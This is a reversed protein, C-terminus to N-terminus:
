SEENVLITSENGVGLEILSAMDDELLIPLPSDEEQLFLVPKVSKLKFFSQCLNKLKGVTTTAPLKKMVPPKEGISAGVCKLSVSILGSAMKQPGTAGTLPREDEIGHIKKLEAFRPHLRTIEEPNDHFKSMVLRVYRIESDKRERPSVESGNLTEVKALRAILVFRPVGGKGIDAIPNESLRIDVLNPFSNLSDISDLDEIKNGGLLLCQLTNFPMPNKDLSECGNDLKHTTGYDPYWIRNLDNKNLFLQELSKLQSLKLIEAWDAIYNDELNLCRLFDFGQVATTSVATIERLKNGLLHLEEICPLSDKLMEVQKWIVGTHNLVLIRINNLQPMTTIDPSLSNCSLNLAALFPLAKCIIGVDNWEALLNGTLDLEKLHPLTSSILSPSGASSVGLYSLSASTLEEFQSMKDQIKEKGLLEISVRKNRASLVYMEDEEEKTSVTRYRVELAQLLSIGSSLNHPRVFSATKLGRADFYKVGNHSGDHKGDGENDWDVGVWTGSFGEVPGVYKVTGIRRTDGIWHVRKGVRFGCEPDSHTQHVSSSSDPPNQM